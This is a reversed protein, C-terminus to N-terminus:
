VLRGSINKLATRIASDILPGHYAHGLNNPHSVDTGSTGGLYLDANGSSNPAGTYGTGFIWAQNVTPSVPVFEMLPDNQAAVAAAISAENLMINASPGTNKAWPGLVIIPIGPARSRAATLFATVNDQLGANADNTGGAVVLIDPSATTIDAVHSLFRWTTGDTSYGTGGLSQAWLDFGLLDAAIRALGMDQMTAGTSAGYSDSFFSMRVPPAPAAFVRDLPGYDISRLGSPSEIALEIRRSVRVGAFDVIVYNYGATADVVAASRSVLRGDVIVRYPTSANVRFAIKPADTIVAFRQPGAGTASAPKTVTVASVQVGSVVPNGGLLRYVTGSGNVAGGSVTDTRLTLEAPKTASSTVTVGAALDATIPNSGRAAAAVSLMREIRARVLIGARAVQDGGAAAIEAATLTGM